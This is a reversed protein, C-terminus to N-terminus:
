GRDPWASPRAVALRDHPDIGAQVRGLHHGGLRLDVNEVAHERLSSASVFRMRSLTMMRNPWPCDPRAAARRRNTCACRPVGLLALEVRDRGQVLLVDAVIIVTVAEHRLHGLGDVHVFHQEALPIRLDDVVLVLGPRTPM